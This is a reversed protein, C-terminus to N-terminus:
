GLQQVTRGRDLSSPLVSNIATSRRGTARDLLADVTMRGLLRASGRMCTIDIDDETDAKCILSVNEPCRIGRLRLQHILSGCLTHNFVIGATPRPSLSLLWEVAKQGDVDPGGYFGIREAPMAPLGARLPARQMGALLLESDSDRELTGGRSFLNGVFFIQTHGQRLLFETATQGESYCNIVIADALPNTTWYDACAVLYGADTYHRVMVENAFGVFIVGLTNDKDPLLLDMATGSHPALIQQVSLAYGVEKCRDCISAYVREYFSGTLSPLGWGTLVKIIGRKRQAIARPVTMTGRRPKREVLGEGVLIDMAKRITIRSVKHIECLDYEPPLRVPRGKDGDLIQVRLGDAVRLYQPPKGPSEAAARRTKTHRRALVIERIM